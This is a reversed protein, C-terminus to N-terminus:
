PKPHLTCPGAVLACSSLCRWPVFRSNSEFLDRDNNHVICPLLSVGIQAVIVKIFGFGLFLFGFGSLRGQPAGVESRSRGVATELAKRVSEPVPQAPDTYVTEDDELTWGNLVAADPGRPKKASGGSGAAPTAVAERKSPSQNPSLLDRTALTATSGPSASTGAAPEFKLAIPSTHEQSRAAEQSLNAGMSASPSAGQYVESRHALTRTQGCRKPGFNSCGLFPGLRGSKIKWIGGCTCSGGPNAAM